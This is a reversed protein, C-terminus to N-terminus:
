PSLGLLTQLKAVLTKLRVPKSLYDTAGAKLCREEDGPMALATLAIIPITQFEPIKRITDIAELGDVVPMQIDMLILDPNLSQTMDIAGQGNLAIRVDYGISELYETMMEINALNDEALLILPRERGLLCHAPSVDPVLQPDFPLDMWFCSGQGEQSSFGVTGGHLEVIQKTLYLGLGTGGQQRNLQGDIQMFPQFLKGQEKPAIGIGTDTVSIRLIRQKTGQETDRETDQLTGPETDQLTATPTETPLVEAALTITGHEPTFKVANALFNLLSQRIRREDVPITPLSKAFQTELSINKKHAQQQVFPISSLCLQYVETFTLHLELTGSEIKTTDLIDNILDLLHSGSNYITQLKRLQKETLNGFIGEQLAESLGLIANLPTRLEHSMNAFFEDKLRTARELQLITTRLIDEQQKRDSM